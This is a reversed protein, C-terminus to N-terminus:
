ELITCVNTHPVLKEIGGQEQRGKRPYLPEEHFVRQGDVSISLWGGACGDRGPNIVRVYRASLFRLDRVRRAFSVSMGPSTNGRGPFTFEDINAAGDVAGTTDGPEDSFVVSISDNTAGGLQGTATHFEVRIKSKATTGYGM